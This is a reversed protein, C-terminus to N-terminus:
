FIVHWEITLISDLEVYKPAFNIKAFPIVVPKTPSTAYLVAEDIKVAGGSELQISEFSALPENVDVICECKVITKYEGSCGGDVYTNDNAFLPTVSGAMSSSKSTIKKVVHEFGTSNSIATLNIPIPKILDIDCVSSVNFTLDATSSFETGGSGIGFSDIVYDAASFDKLSPLDVNFNFLKQAAFQRGSAITMNTLWGDPSNDTNLKGNEFIRVLGLFPSKSQKKKESIINYIDHHIVKQM